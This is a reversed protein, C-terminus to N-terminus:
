RKVADAVDELWATCDPAEGTARKVWEEYSMGSAGRFVEERAVKRAADGLLGGPLPRLRRYIAAQACRALLYDTRALPEFALNRKLAWADVDREADVRATDRQIASYQGPLDGDPNAYAAREFEIDALISRMRMRESQVEWRKMAGVDEAPVGQQRLWEEAFFLRETVKACGESVAASYPHRLTRCSGPETLLAMAAHGYEHFASWHPVIGPGERVVIGQEGPPDIPYFAFSGFETRKAERVQLAPPNAPLGLYDFVFSARQLSHAADFRTEMRAALAPDMAEFEWPKMLPGEVTRLADRVQRELRMATAPDYGRHKSMRELYGSRAWRNRAALLRRVLPALESAASAQSERRRLPVILQLQAAVDPDSESQMRAALAHIAALCRKQEPSTLGADMARVEDDRLLMLPLMGFSRPKVDRDTTASLWAARMAEQQVKDAFADHQAFNPLSEHQQCSYLLLLAVVLAGRRGARHVPPPAQGEVKHSQVIAVEWLRASICSRAGYSMSEEVFSRRDRCQSLDQEHVVVEHSAFENPRNLLIKPEPQIDGAELRLEDGIEIEADAVNEAAVAREVLEREGHIERSSGPM